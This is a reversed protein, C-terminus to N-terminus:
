QSILNSNKLHGVIGNFTEEDTYQKLLDIEDPHVTLEELDMNQKTFHKKLAESTTKADISVTRDAPYPNKVSGLEVAASRVLDAPVSYVIARQGTKPRPRLLFRSLGSEKPLHLDMSGRRIDNDANIGAVIEKTKAKETAYTSSETGHERAIQRLDYMRKSLSNPNFSIIHTQQQPIAGATIETDPDFGRIKDVEIMTPITLSGGISGKGGKVEVDSVKPKGDAGLTIIRSDPLKVTNAAKDAIPEFADVFKGFGEKAAHVVSLSKIGHMIRATHETPAGKNNDARLMGLMTRFITGVSERHDMQEILFKVLKLRHDM